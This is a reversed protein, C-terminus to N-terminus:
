CISLSKLEFIHNSLNLITYFLKNTDCIWCLKPVFINSLIQSTKFTVNRFLHLNFHFYLVKCSDCVRNYKLSVFWPLLMMIIDEHCFKKWLTGWIFNSNSPLSCFIGLVYAFTSNGNVLVSSLLCIGAPLRSVLM